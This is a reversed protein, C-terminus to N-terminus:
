EPRRFIYIVRDRYILRRHERAYNVQYGTASIHEPYPSSIRAICEFALNWFIRYCDAILPAYGNPHMKGWSDMMVLSCTGGPRLTNYVIEGTKRIFELFEDIDDNFAGDVKMNFYPYDLYIHDADQAEDPLGQSLDNYKIDDRKPNIDYMLCRRGYEECIRKSPGTGAMPDIIMDNPESFYYLIHELVESFAIGYDHSKDYEHRAHPFNWVNTYLLPDPRTRTAPNEDLKEYFQEMRQTKVKEEVDRYTPVQGETKIEELTDHLIEDPNPAKEILALKSPEIVIGELHDLAPGADNLYADLRQKGRVADIYRLATSHPIDLRRSLERRGGETRGGGDHKEVHIFLLGLAFKVTEGIGLLYKGVEVAQEMNQINSNFWEELNSQKWEVIEYAPTKSIVNPGDTSIEDDESPPMADIDPTAGGEPAETM